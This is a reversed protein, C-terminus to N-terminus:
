LYEIVQSLNKRERAKIIQYNDNEKEKIGHKDYSHGNVKYKTTKLQLSYEKRKMNEIKDVKIIIKQIVFQVEEHRLLSEISAKGEGKSQM